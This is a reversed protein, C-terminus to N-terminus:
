VLLLHNQCERKNKFGLKNFTTERLLWSPGRFGPMLLIIVKLFGQGHVSFLSGFGGLHREM